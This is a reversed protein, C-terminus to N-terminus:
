SISASNQLHVKGRFDVINMESAFMRAQCQILKTSVCFGSQCQEMIWTKLWQELNAWKAPKGRLDKKKEPM